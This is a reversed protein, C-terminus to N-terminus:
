ALPLVDNFTVLLVHSTFFAVNSRLENQLTAFVIQRIKLRIKLVIKNHTFAIAKGLRFFQNNDQSFSFFPFPFALPPLKQNLLTSLPLFLLFNLLLAKLYKAISLPNFSPFWSMPSISIRSTPPKLKAVKGRMRWLEPQFCCCCCCCVFM